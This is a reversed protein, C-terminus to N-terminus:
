ESQPDLHCVTCCIGEFSLFDFFNSFRSCIKGNRVGLAEGHVWPNM